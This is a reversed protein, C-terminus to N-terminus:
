KSREMGRGLAWAEAQELTPHDTYLPNGMATPGINITCSRFPAHRYERRLLTLQGKRRGEQEWVVLLVAEGSRGVWRAIERGYDKVSM